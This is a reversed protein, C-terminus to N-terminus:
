SEDIVEPEPKNRAVLKGLKNRVIIRSEEERVFVEGEAILTYIDDLVGDPDTRRVLKGDKNRVVVSKAEKKVLTENPNILTVLVDFSGAGVKTSGTNLLGKKSSNEEAM